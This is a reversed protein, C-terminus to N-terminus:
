SPYGEKVEEPTAPDLVESSEECVQKILEHRVNCLELYASDYGNDKPVSLDEYYEKNRQLSYKMEM